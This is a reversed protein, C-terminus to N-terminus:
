LVFSWVSFEGDGDEKVRCVDSGERETFKIVRPVECLPIVYHRDKPTPSIASLMIDELHMRTTAHPLVGKRTRARYHETWTLWMKNIREDALSCRPEKWRKAIALLAETFMPGQIKLVIYYFHNEAFM